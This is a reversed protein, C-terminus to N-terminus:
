PQVHGILYSTPGWPGYAIWQFEEFLRLSVSGDYYGCYAGLPQFTLFSAYSSMGISACNNYRAAGRVQAVEYGIALADGFNYMWEQMLVQRPRARDIKVPGGARLTGVASTMRYGPWYFWPMPLYTANTNGLDDFPKTGLLPHSTAPMAGYGRLMPRMDFAYYPYYFSGPSDGTTGSLGPLASGKWDEAYCFDATTISRLNVSGHLRRSLLKAKALSPLLLAILLAIISVVILLEILTFARRREIPNTLRATM